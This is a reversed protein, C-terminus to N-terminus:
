QKHRKKTCGWATDRECTREEKRGREEERGREREKEREQERAVHHHHDMGRVANHLGDRPVRCSM